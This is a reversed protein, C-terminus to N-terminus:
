GRCQMLVLFWVSLTANLHSPKNTVPTYGAEYQCIRGTEGVQIIPKVQHSFGVYSLTERQRGGQCADLGHSLGMLYTNM